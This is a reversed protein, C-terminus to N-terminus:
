MHYSCFRWRFSLRGINRSSILYRHYMCLVLYRTGESISTGVYRTRGVWWRIVGGWASVDM